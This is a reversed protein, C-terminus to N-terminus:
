WAKKYLALYDEKTPIRPNNFTNGDKLALEAYYALNNEDIGKIERLRPIGIDQSLRLVAACVKDGIEVDSLGDIPLGMAKAIMPYKELRAVMNYEMVYPLMMANGVGHPVNLQGGLMHSLAHAAGLGVQQFGWGAIVNGLLVAGRAELNGGNAVSQRLNKSILEVAKINILDSFVNANKSLIAEIAHTLADMGTAAALASPMSATMVPDILAVKAFTGTNPDCLSMKWHRDTDTVVAYPTVSSGTGATTPITILPDMPIPAPHTGPRDQDYERVNGGNKYVMGIAKSTDISSGGGIAIFSDCGSAAYEDIGEHVIVDTPNGVVKDFIVYEIKKADLSDTVYHLLGAGIVGKDTVIFPKKCGLASLEDGVRSVVGPGYEVRVPMVYSFSSLISM